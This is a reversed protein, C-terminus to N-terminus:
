ARTQRGAAAVLTVAGAGTLLVFTNTLARPLVTASLHQWIEDGPGFAMYLVAAAPLAFGASLLVAAISWVRPQGEGLGVRRATATLNRLFLSLSEGAEDAPIRTPATAM